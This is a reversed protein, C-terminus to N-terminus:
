GGNRNDATLESKLVHRHLGPIHTDQVYSQWDIRSVDTNFRQRDEPHMENYIRDLNQTEFRCDLFTYPAYIECLALVRELTAEGRTITRMLRNTRNSEPLRDLMWRLMAMPLKYRFWCWREFREVTPFRWRSVHIPNGDRDLVPNARYYDYVYDFIEGFRIPNRAGTGVHYVEIQDTERIRPVVSLIANAVIDVPIVDMVAQPDGPFDSLRGKSFHAILPDAVKLGELWGPEPDQLSSEIISPRVIAVPLDGRERQLLQEGMAKTMTYADNWGHHRGRRLGERVLRGQIWREKLADLQHDLRHETVRKGRNQRVLQEKFVASQAPTEAEDRVREAFAEIEAIQEDLDYRPAAGNGLQQAISTDPPLLAEPIKGTMQGNVYATSVYVFCANKCGKSFDLVRQLGIANQRLAMDVPEDFVVTAASSIVVDVESQLQAWTEDEIGLDDYELGKWAVVSLKEHVRAEFADGWEKRLVDFASSAIVQNLRVEASQTGGSKLKRERAPVYIRKIDPVHRLAQVVVAKGVFGTAGTVFLVKDKLYEPISQMSQPM